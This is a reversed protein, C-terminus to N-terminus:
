AVMVTDDDPFMTNCQSGHLMNHYIDMNILLSFSTMVESGSGKAFDM